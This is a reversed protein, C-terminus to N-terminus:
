TSQHEMWDIVSGFSCKFRETRDCVIQAATIHGPQLSNAIFEAPEESWQVVSLREGNLEEELIKARWKKKGLCIAVPNLMPDSSRVAIKTSMSPERAVGVIEIDGLKVQVAPKGDGFELMPGGGFELM